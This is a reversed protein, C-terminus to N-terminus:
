STSPLSSLQMEAMLVSFPESFQHFGIKPKVYKATTNYDSESILIKIGYSFANILGTAQLFRESLSTHPTLMKRLICPFVLESRDKIPGPSETIM